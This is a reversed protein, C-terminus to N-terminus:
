RKNPSGIKGYVVHFNQNEITNQDV